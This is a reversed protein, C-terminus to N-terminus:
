PRIGSLVTFAEGHALAVDARIWCLLGVQLNDAYRQDLVKTRMGLSTRIGVLCNEWQGIYAESTDSNTGTTLNTPVQNTSYHAVDKFDQPPDLYRGQSDKLGSLTRQTRPNFVIGNPEFNGARLVQFADLFSDYSPTAGNAGLSTVTVGTQHLIGKPEPDTGSGRLVARDLELALTQAIEHQILGSAEPSLDDFLEQSLKVLVPLTKTKLVVRDFTMSSEAVANGESKWSASAGGTLRALNLTDVIMPVTVAGAQFVRAANRVRDIMQVALPEPVLFGGASDVGEALARKETDTLNGRQGGAVLARVVNGINFDDADAATLGDGAAGYSGGHRAEYWSTM